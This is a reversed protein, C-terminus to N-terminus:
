PDNENVAFDSIRGGTVAPGMSRLPLSSFVTTVQNEKDKAYIPTAIFILTFISSIIVSINKKM